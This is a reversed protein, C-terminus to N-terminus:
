CEVSSSRRKIEGKPVSPKRMEIIRIELGHLRLLKDRTKVDGGRGDRIRNTFRAKSSM